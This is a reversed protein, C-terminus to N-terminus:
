SYAHYNCQVSFMTHFLLFNNKTYGHWDVFTSDGGLAVFINKKLLIIIMRIYAPM